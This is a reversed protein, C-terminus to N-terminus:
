GEFGGMAAAAMKREAMESRTQAITDQAVRILQMTFSLTNGTTQLRLIADDLEPDNRATALKLAQIELPTFGQTTEQLIAKVDAAGAEGAFVGDDEEEEELPLLLMESYTETMSKALVRDYQGNNLGLSNEDQKAAYLELSQLFTVADGTADYYDCISSLSADESLAAESVLLTAAQDSVQPDGLGRM